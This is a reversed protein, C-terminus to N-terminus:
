WEEGYGWDDEPPIDVVYEGNDRNGRQIQRIDLLRHYLRSTNMRILVPTVRHERAIPNAVETYNSNFIYMEYEEIVNFSDNIVMRIRDFDIRKYRNGTARAETSNDRVYIYPLGTYYKRDSPRDEYHIYDAQTAFVFELVFRGAGFPTVNRIESGLVEVRDVTTVEDYVRNNLHDTYFTLDDNLRYVRDVRENTRLRLTNVYNFELLSRLMSHSTSAIGEQFIDRLHDNDENFDERRISALYGNSDYINVYIWNAFVEDSLAKHPIFGLILGTVLLGVLLVAPIAMWKRFRFKQRPSKEHKIGSMRVPTPKKAPTEEVEQPVAFVADGIPTEDVVPIEDNAQPQEDFAEEAEIVPIEDENAVTTTIEEQAVPPEEAIPAEEIATTPSEEAVPAEPTEEVAVPADEVVPVKEESTPEVEAVPVETVASPNDNAKTPAVEEMTEGDTNIKLEENEMQRLTRKYPAIGV